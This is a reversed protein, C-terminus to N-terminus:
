AQHLGVPNGDLDSIIAIDGMDGPLAMKPMVVDGGLGSVRGLAGDLDSCALYIVVGGSAPEVGHVPTVGGSIGDEQAKPFMAFPMDGEVVKTLSIDLLKEYFGISKDYDRAPISFWTIAHNPTQTM